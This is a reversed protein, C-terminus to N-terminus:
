GPEPGALLDDDWEVVLAEDFALVFSWIWRLLV